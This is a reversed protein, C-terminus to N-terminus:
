VVIVEPKTLRLLRMGLKRFLYDDCIAFAVHNSQIQFTEVAPCLCLSCNDDLEGINLMVLISANVDFQNHLLRYLDRLFQVRTIGQTM